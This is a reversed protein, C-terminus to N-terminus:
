SLVPDCKRQAEGAWLDGNGEEVRAGGEARRDKMGGRYIPDHSGIWDQMRPHNIDPPHIEIWKGFISWWEEAFRGQIQLSRMNEVFAGFDAGLAHTFEEATLPDPWFEATISNRGM